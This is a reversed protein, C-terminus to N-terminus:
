PAPCGTAGSPVLDFAYRNPITGDFGHFVVHDSVALSLRLTGDHAPQGITYTGSAQHTEGASPISYAYSVAGASANRPVFLFTWAVKSTHSAV